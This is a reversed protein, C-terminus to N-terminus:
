PFEKKPPLDNIIPLMLAVTVFAGILVGVILGGIM